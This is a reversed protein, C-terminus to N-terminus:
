PIELWLHFVDIDGPARTSGPYTWTRGHKTLHARPATRSLAPEVGSLLNYESPKGARKLHSDLATPLVQSTRRVYGFMFAHTMAWAYSGDVFRKVGKGCYYGPQHDNTVLKAEAVLGSNWRSMGPVLKRRFIFDPRKDLLQGQYDVSARPCDYEPVPDLVESLELLAVDQLDWLRDLTMVLAVSIVNEVGENLDRRHWSPNKLMQQWGHRMAREFKLLEVTSLPAYPWHKEPGQDDALM